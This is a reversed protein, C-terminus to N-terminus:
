LGAKIPELIRRLHNRSRGMTRAIAREPLGEAFLALAVCFEWRQGTTIARLALYGAQEYRSAQPTDRFHFLPHDEPLTDELSPLLTTISVHRPGKGLLPERGGYLHPRFSELDEFGSAELKGGRAYWERQIAKEEDRTYRKM